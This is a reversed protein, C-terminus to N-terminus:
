QILGVARAASVIEGAVPAAVRAGYGAQEVIVSFAIRQVGGPLARAAPAAAETGFPAFGVFWSHSRQGDVEATGTKGAIAIPHDALVRGTGSTVVQRMATRLQAAGQKTAWQTGSARTPRDLTIRVERLMGGEALAGAVGAMRLPSALVDGQGYGAYPLTRRLNQAAPPRAVAIQAESAVESLVQPGILTALNSFYANCSVVLAGNLDLMGHPTHDLPDDRVPKSAGRVRGGVRGDPLRICQYQAHQVASELRLAAVATVLKFTSGPPYLGYRARDLLTDPAMPRDGALEVADPWPYSAAALLGGTAPDIVVAAGRGPQARGAQDRLARATRVQLGADITLRLSRDRELIRRVDAHTPRGKHRVLPLLESYDRRIVAHTTGASRNLVEVTHARDDFGKLREDFDKEVYSTNRAAWNTQRTADGLVHFALGGLPYCRGEVSGLAAGLSTSPREGGSRCAQPLELGLKQYQSTFKEIEGPNSSALPVGDRDFITGRVISRAASILRPNYQYRYGGDAQQTLNARTAFTDAHLVQVDGARVVILLTAAALSWGLARTPRVLADRAPGRRRAIAACVGLAAFNSLMASRGYSLFPTVVGALPLLGLMGAVIVLGQVALALTLGITLFATYDGPARVSIRLLRWVLIAFLAAITVFGIYGLEEGLAAIVLDTHGAPIVHPEGVGPGLGWPGGSSLAWLAHAIQDGGPLANEWPDLAIAVRRTVTSPVGLAYGVAFGITLVAFGAVVLGGRARAIGYLGLFVCSLVLAPGLDRQLFFLALLATLSVALPRVDKWRPLRLWRRIGRRAGHDASLERLFQWRRAFYAALSFVVLLRVAEAPQFGLLNVQAHSGTPGGGFIILAIALGVAATLPALVARRLRPDEFDVFALATWLACGAGIGGAVTAMAVTDRLPDRLALMAVMGLGTLLQVVPLLLPDGVAGFRWRVLHAAWFAGMFLAIALTIQRRFADPTRVVFGDKLEAIDAGTFVAIRSADPRAQLRRNLVVLRSDSRIQSAPLAVSALAGVHTMPQAGTAGHVRQLVAGAVVAKETREQFMTLRPILASADGVSRLNVLAGNQVDAAFTSFMATQEVYTLWLGFLLVLSTVALGLREFRAARGQGEVRSAIGSRESLVPAVGAVRERRTTAPPPNVIRM